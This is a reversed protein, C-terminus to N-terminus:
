RGTWLGQRSEQCGGGAVSLRVVSLDDEQRLGVTALGRLVGVRPSRVREQPPDSRHFVMGNSILLILAQGM